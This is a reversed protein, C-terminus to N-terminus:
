PGPFPLARVRAGDKEEGQRGPGQTARPWHLEGESMAPRQPGGTRVGNTLPQRCPGAPEQGLPVAQPGHPLNRDM